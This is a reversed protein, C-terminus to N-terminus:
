RAAQLRACVWVDLFVPNEPDPRCGGGVDLSDYDYGHQDAWSKWSMVFQNVEDGTLPGPHTRYYVTVDDPDVEKAWPPPEEWGAM